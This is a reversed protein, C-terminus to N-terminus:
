IGFDAKGSLVAPFRGDVTTTLLEIKAPDGVLAKAILRAFEVEFGTLKGTEDVFGNPRSTSSVAVIVKDRKVITELRSEEARAPSLGLGAWLALMTAVGATVSLYRRRM